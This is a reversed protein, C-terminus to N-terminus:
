SFLSCLVPVGGCLVAYLWKFMIIYVYNLIMLHM